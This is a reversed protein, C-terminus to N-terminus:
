RSNGKAEWLGNEAGRNQSLRLAGFERGLQLTSLHLM